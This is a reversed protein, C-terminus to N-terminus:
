ITTATNEIDSKYPKEIDNICIHEKVKNKVLYLGCDKCHDHIILKFPQKGGCWSM